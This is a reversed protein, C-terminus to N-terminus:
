CLLVWLGEFWRLEELSGSYGYGELFGDLYSRSGLNYELSWAAAALDTRYDAYRGTVWDVVGGVRGAQVLANPVCFDFHTFAMQLVIRPKEAELAELVARAVWGKYPGLEIVADKATRVATAQLSDFPSEWSDLAPKWSHIQRLARGWSQVLHQKQAEDSEKLAHVLNQGELRTQLSYFWGADEFFAVAKPLQLGTNEPLAALVTQENQLPAAEQLRKLIFGGKQSEMAWTAAHGGQFPQSVAHVLGVYPELTKLNLEWNTSSSPM